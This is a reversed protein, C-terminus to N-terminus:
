KEYIIKLRHYLCKFLQSHSFYVKYADCITKFVEYKIVCCDLQLIPSVCASIKTFIYWCLEYNWRAHSKVAMDPDKSLVELRAFPKYTGCIIEFVQYLIVCCDFPCMPFSCTSIKTFIAWFHEFYGRALSKIVMEPDTSLM